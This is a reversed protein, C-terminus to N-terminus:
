PKRELAAARRSEEVEHWFSNSLRWCSANLLCFGRGRYPVQSRLAMMLHCADAVAVARADIEDFRNSRAPTM